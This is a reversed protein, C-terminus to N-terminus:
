NNRLELGPIFLEKHRYNLFFPELILNIEKIYSPKITSINDNIISSISRFGLRYRSDNRSPSLQENKLLMILEKKTQAKKFGFNEAHYSFDKEIEFDILIKNVVAFYSALMCDNMTANEVEFDPILYFRSIPLLLMSKYLYIEDNINM